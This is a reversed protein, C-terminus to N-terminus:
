RSGPSIISGPSLMAAYIASEMVVVLSKAPAVIDKVEEIVCGVFHATVAPWLEYPVSFLQRPTLGQYRAPVPADGILCMTVVSWLSKLLLKPEVQPPHDIVVSSVGEWEGDLSTVVSNILAAFTPLQEICLGSRTAANITVPWLRTSAMCIDSPALIDNLPLGQLFEGTRLTVTSLQHLGLNDEKLADVMFWSRQAAFGALLGSAVLYTETDPSGNLLLQPRIHRLLKVLALYCADCEPQSEWPYLVRERKRGSSPSPNDIIDSM